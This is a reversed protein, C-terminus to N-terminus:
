NTMDVFSFAITTRNNRHSTIGVFGKLKEIMPQISQINQVVPTFDNGALNKLHLLVVNGYLKASIQITNSGTGSILQNLLSGLVSAVLNRDTGVFLDPSVDNIIVTSKSFSLPELSESLRDIVDFLCVSDITGGPGPKIISTKM